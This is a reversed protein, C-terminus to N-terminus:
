VPQPAVTHPQERGDQWYPCDLFVETIMLVGRKRTFLRRRAYLPTHLVTHGLAGAARLMLPHGPHLRAFEFVGGAVAPDSFLRSGISRNGLAAFYPWDSRSADHAMVTHAFVVPTENCRLLVDRELVRARQPLGLRAAEDALCRAQAQSLRQVRFSGSAATLRATLSHCDALWSWLPHSLPLGPAFARWSAVRTRQVTVNPRLVPLPRHDM